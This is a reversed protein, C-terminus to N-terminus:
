AVHGKQLLVHLLFYGPLVGYGLFPRQEEAKNLEIVWVEVILKFRLYTYLCDHIYLKYIGFAM